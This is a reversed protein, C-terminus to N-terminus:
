EKLRKVFDSVDTTAMYDYDGPVDFAAEFRNIADETGALVSIQTIARKKKALDKENTGTKNPTIENINVYFGDFKPWEKQCLFDVSHKSYISAALREIKGKANANLVAHVSRPANPHAVAETVVTAVPAEPPAVAETPLVVTAVPAERGVAATRPVSKRATARSKSATSIQPTTRGLVRSTTGARIRRSSRTPFSPHRALKDWDEDEAPFLLRFNSVKFKLLKDILVKSKSESSDPIAENLGDSEYGQVHQLDGGTVAVAAAIGFPADDAEHSKLCGDVEEGDTDTEEESSEALVAKVKQDFGRPSLLQLALQRQKLLECPDEVNLYQKRGTDVIELHSNKACTVCIYGSADNSGKSIKMRCSFHVALGCYSCRTSETLPVDKCKCKVGSACALKDQFLTDGVLLSRIGKTAAAM